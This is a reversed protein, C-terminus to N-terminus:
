ATHKNFECGSSPPVEAHIHAHETILANLVQVTKNLFYMSCVINTSSALSLRLPEQSYSGPRHTCRASVLRRFVLYWVEYLCSEDCVDHGSLLQWPIHGSLNDNADATMAVPCFVGLVQREVLELQKECDSFTHTDAM